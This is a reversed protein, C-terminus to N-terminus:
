FNYTVGVKTLLNSTSLVGAKTNTGDTATNGVMGDVKLKGFNLTAGANVATTNAISDKKGTTQKVEGILVNQAISGRVVLWSTADAEM